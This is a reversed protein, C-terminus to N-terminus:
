GLSWCLWLVHLCFNERETQPNREKSREKPQLIAKPKITAEEKYYTSCLIFKPASKEDKDDCREFDVDLRYTSKTVGEEVRSLDEEIM